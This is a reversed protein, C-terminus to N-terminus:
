KFNDIFNNAFKASEYLDAHAVEYLYVNSDKREPLLLCVCSRDSKNEIRALNIVEELLEGAKHFNNSMIHALSINYMTLIKRQNHELAFNYAKTLWELANQIQFSSLYIYGLNNMYQQIELTDKSIALIKKYSEIAELNLNKYEDKGTKYLKYTTWGFNKEFTLCDNDKYRDCCCASKKFDFYAEEYKGLNSLEAGRSCIAGSHESNIALCKNFFMISEKPDKDIVGLQYWADANNEDFCLADLFEKKAGPINGLEKFCIGKFIHYKSESTKINIAKNFQNLAGKYDNNDLLLLGYHFHINPCGDNFKIGKKYCLNAEDKRDLRELLLAKHHWLSENTDNKELADNFHRLAEENNGKINLLYTKFLLLQIDDDYMILLDDVLKESEDYKNISLLVHIKQHYYELNLKLNYKNSIKEIDNVCVRFKIEDETTIKHKINKFQSFTMISDKIEKDVFEKQPFLQKLYTENVQQEIKNLEKNILERLKKPDNYKYKIYMQDKVDSFDKDMDIPIIPYKKNSSKLLSNIDVNANKELLVVCPKGLGVLVGYEFIVNPRFGDLIIIALSCTNLFEILQAYQSHGSIGHISLRKAEYKGTAELVTEISDITINIHYERSSYVIFCLRKSEDPKIDLPIQM